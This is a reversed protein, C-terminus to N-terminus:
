PTCAGAIYEDYTVSFDKCFNGSIDVAAEPYPFSTDYMDVRSQIRRFLDNARGTSDVIPQVGDFSILRAGDPLTIRFHASNYFSSLRLFATRNASSGGIPNPLQITATCAYEGSSLSNVCSIPLPADSSIDAQPEQTPTSARRDRDTLPIPSAASSTIGGTGIQPYLFITNANSEAASPTTDFSSLTFTDAYQMFQARLVPPRDVPWNAPLPQSGSPGASLASSGPSLDKSSFWEITVNQYPETAILPILRSTNASVSGLIDDTDLQVTVCTYAQDLLIDDAATTTQQIKIEGVSDADRGPAVAGSAVVDALALNCKAFKAEESTPCSTGEKLCNEKFALLARKADEVGAQASDLASQSLDNNSAQTQNDIMLRLFGITVVSILLMALIVVFLSVAGSQRSASTSKM